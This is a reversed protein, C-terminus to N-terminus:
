YFVNCLENLVKLVQDLHTEFIMRFNTPTGKDSLKVGVSENM